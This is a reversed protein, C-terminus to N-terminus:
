SIAMPLLGVTPMQLSTKGKISSRETQVLSLSMIVLLRITDLRVPQKQSAILARSLSRLNLWGWTMRHKQPLKKITGAATKQQLSLCGWSTSAARKTGYIKSYCSSNRYVSQHDGAYDYSRGSHPNGMSRRIGKRMSSNAITQKSLHHGAPATVEELRYTQDKAVCYRSAAWVNWGKIWM